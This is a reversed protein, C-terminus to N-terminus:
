ELADKFAKNGTLVAILDSDPHRRMHEDIINNLSHQGITRSLDIPLELLVGLVNPSESGVNSIASCRDAWIRIGFHSKSGTGYEQWYDIYTGDASTTKM